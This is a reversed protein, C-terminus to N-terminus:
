YPSNVIENRSLYSARGKTRRPTEPPAMISERTPRQLARRAVMDVENPLGEMSACAAEIDREAESTAGGEDADYRGFILAGLGVGLLLAVLAGAM